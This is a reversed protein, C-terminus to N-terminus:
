RRTEPKFTVPLEERRLGKYQWLRPKAAPGSKDVFADADERRDFTRAESGEECVLPRIKPPVFTGFWGGPCAWTVISVLFFKM